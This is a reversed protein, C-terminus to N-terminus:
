DIAYSLTSFGSANQFKCFAVKVVDILDIEPFRWVDLM